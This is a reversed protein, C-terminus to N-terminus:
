RILNLSFQSDWEHDEGLPFPLSRNTIGPLTHRIGSPPVFPGFFYRYRLLSYRSEPALDRLDRVEIAFVVSNSFTEPQTRHVQIGVIARVM